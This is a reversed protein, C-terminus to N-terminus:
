YMQMYDSQAERSGSTHGVITANDDLIGIVKIPITENNDAVAELIDGVNASVGWVVAHLMNDPTVEPTLWSGSALEPQYRNIIDPDYSRFTVNSSGQLKAQLTYCSLVTASKLVDELDKSNECVTKNDLSVNTLELFM